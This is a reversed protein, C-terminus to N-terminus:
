NIETIKEKERKVCKIDNFNIARFSDFYLKEYHNKEDDNLDLQQKKQSAFYKRRLPDFCLLSKLTHCNEIKLKRENQRRNQFCFHHYFRINPAMLAFTSIKGCSRSSRTNV